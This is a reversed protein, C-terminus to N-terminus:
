SVQAESLPFASVIEADATGEEANKLEAFQAAIEPLADLRGNEVLLHLFFLVATASM